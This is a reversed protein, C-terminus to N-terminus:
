RRRKTKGRERGTVNVCKPCRCNHLGIEAGCPWSLDLDYPFGLLGALAEARHEVADPSLPGRGSSRDIVVLPSSNDDLRRYTDRNRDRVQSFVVGQYDRRVEVVLDKKPKVKRPAM